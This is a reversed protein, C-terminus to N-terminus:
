FVASSPCTKSVQQNLPFSKRSSDARNTYYCVGAQSRVDDGTDGNPKYLLVATSISKRNSGWAPVARTFCQNCMWGADNIAVIIAFGSSSSTTERGLSGLLNTEVHGKYVSLRNYVWDTIVSGGVLASDSYSNSPNSGNASIRLGYRGDVCYLMLGVTKASPLASRLRQVARVLAILPPTAFNASCDQPREYPGKTPDKIQALEPYTAPLYDPGTQIAALLAITVAATQLVQTAVPIKDITRFPDVIPPTKVFAVIDDYWYPATSCASLTLNYTLCLGNSYQLKFSKDVQLEIDSWRATPDCPRVSLSSGVFGLCNTSDVDAPFEWPDTSARRGRLWFQTTGAAGSASRQLRHV